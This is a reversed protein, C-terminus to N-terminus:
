IFELRSLIEHNEELEEVSAVGICVADVNLATVYELAEKPNICGAAMTKKGIIPKSSHKILDPVRHANNGMIKRVKNVPILLFDASSQLLEPIQRFPAHTAFGKLVGPIDMKALCQEREEITTQDTVSAHYGVLSCGLERAVKIEESSDAIGCVFLFPVGPYEKSIKALSQVIPPIGFPQIGWGLEAARRMITFINEPNQHFKEYYEQARYGFQGAGM